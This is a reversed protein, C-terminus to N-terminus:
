RREDHCRQPMPGVSHHLDRRDSKRHRKRRPQRRHQTNKHCNTIQRFVSQMLHAYEKVNEHLVNADSMGDTTETTQIAAKAEALEAELREIRKKNVLGARREMEARAVDIGVRNRELADELEKASLRRPNSIHIHNDQKPDSPPKQYPQTRPNNHWSKNRGRFSRGQSSRFAMRDLQARERDERLIQRNYDNYRQMMELHDRHNLVTTQTQSSMSNTNHVTPNYASPVPPPDYASRAPTPPYTPLQSGEIWQVDGNADEVRLGKKLFKNRAEQINRPRGASRAWAEYGTPPGDISISSDLAAETLSYLYKYYVSVDPCTDTTNFMTSQRNYSRHLVQPKIHGQECPLIISGVYINNDETDTNRVDEPFEVNLQIDRPPSGKGKGLQGIHRAGQNELYADLAALHQVEHYPLWTKDGSQWQVEFWSRTGGASHTCIRQVVHDTTTNDSLNTIQPVSRAPFRRDDNPIHVRLLRAHFTPHIGRSLLESPLALKYATHATVEQVIKYPGIYKPALKRARGKPLSLNETSLYVLDGVSFPAPRRKKNSQYIQKVRHVLISDHAAILADRIKRLFSRVGPLTEDINDSFLPPPNSGYNLFFPSYGTTDSRALNFAYEVAPLKLVWNKQDHDVTMRLMQTITRNARETAGDTQPHFATSMRLESKTIKHLHEWFGSTFLSDRDSVLIQPPGHLKYVNEFMLEAIDRARYDSRSPILHVMSSLHDIIVCIMDFEGHRNTSSPLPGVFDIGIQQWRRHPVPLPKLNGYQKQNQPKATACTHCSKCYDTIDSFMGPWWVNSRLYHFTKRGSLHALLSHAHSIITERISVDEIKGDPICLLEDDHDLLFILGQKAKFTAFSVPNDLIKKFFKDQTYLSQLCQPFTMHPHLMSIVESFSPGEVNLLSDGHSHCIADRTKEQSEDDDGDITILDPLDHTNDDSEGLADSINKSSVQRPMPLIQQRKRPANKSRTRSTVLQQRAAESIPLIAVGPMAEGEHRATLRRTRTSRKTTHVNQDNSGASRPVTTTQPDLVRNVTHREVNSSRTRTNNRRINTTQDKNAASRTVAAIQLGLEADAARGTILPRSLSQLSTPIDPVDLEHIYESEARVIGNPENSYLRSLADAFVNTEGPIYRINFSFDSLVDVWRQQRASMQKQTMLYEIPKHDTYINFTIGMLLHRYRKLSEVIALLEREHVPYNQQAKNFKGSWFVIIDFQHMTGQTIVGGGGTQSADVILNVPREELNTHYDIGVRHLDRYRQINEKMSEFARQETPGWRWKKGASTLTSLVASDIRLNPCNGALYGAAGIFQLLLDKNTPTKWKIIQDVKHPDMRIGKSDVRHGLIPLDTAFFHLKDLTSLYLRNKRLIDLVIRVHQVHEELTDSYVVIDDLYPEVFKGIYESFLHNMLTQYTAPANCDGQQMVNSVMTGDPTNFLTKDVDEPAIRISEYADKGDILTRYRHRCINMLIDQQDPLPSAMKRTNLNRERADFVTRLRPKGDPGPKKHILLMPIANSGVRREWRGSKLYKDRKQMWQSKMVEPCRSPRFTYKKDADIIPIKHNIARMPPLPTDEAAICLDKAEAQLMQRLGELNANAIDATMSSIRAIGEGELHQAVDAGISIKSPNFGILVKHQWLFPTGLIIDHNELNIVDFRRREEIGQYKFTAEVSSTIMTRSGSAAMQCAIPKALHSANLKLQDVAVTSIFDSLSGSDVLARMQKNNISCEVIMAKPVVRDFDKPKAANRELTNMYDPYTEERMKEKGKRRDSISTVNSFLEVMSIQLVDQANAADAIAQMSKFDATAAQIGPPHPITSRRPCDRALHGSQECIFCQNNARLEDKRDSTMRPRPSPRGSYGGRSTIFRGQRMPSRPSDSNRGGTVRGGFRSDVHPQQERNTAQHTNSIRNGDHKHSVSKPVVTHAGSITGDRLSKRLEFTRLYEANEFREAALELEGLTSFEPTYGNETWKLRLYSNAGDWYKQTLQFETMDPLRAAISRLHRLYERVTQKGQTLENFKIRTQRRFAPPFCYNFLGQGVSEVTWAKIDPAVFTMYYQQARGRMFALMQRVRHRRPFETIDFWANVAYSWREFADFDSSGDYPQPADIKVKTAEELRINERRKYERRKHAKRIAKNMNSSDSSGSTPSSSDSGDPDGNHGDRINQALYSTAPIQEIPQHATKPVEPCKPNGGPTTKRLTFIDPLFDNDQRTSSRDSLQIEALQAHQQPHVTTVIKPSSTNTTNAESSLKVDKFKNAREYIRKQLTADLGEVINAMFQAYAADQPAQPAKPVHKKTRGKPVRSTSPKNIDKWEVPIEGYPHETGNFDAWRTPEIQVPPLDNPINSECNAHDPLWLPFFKPPHALENDPQPTIQRSVARKRAPPTIYGDNDMDGAVDTTQGTDAAPQADEHNIDAIESTTGTNQNTPQLGENPTRQAITPYMHRGVLSDSSSVLNTNTQNIVEASEIHTLTPYTTGGVNSEISSGLYTTTQNHDVANENVDLTPYTTGGVLSTVPSLNTTGQDHGENQPVLYMHRQDLGEGFSSTVGDDDTRLVTQDETSEGEPRAMSDQYITGRRTSM